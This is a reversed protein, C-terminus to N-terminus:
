MGNFCLTLVLAVLFLVTLRKPSVWTSRREQEAKKRLASLEGNTYHGNTRDEM